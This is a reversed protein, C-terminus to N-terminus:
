VSATATATTQKQEVSEDQDMNIPQQGGRDLLGLALSLWPWHDRMARTYAVICYCTLCILHMPVKYIHREM